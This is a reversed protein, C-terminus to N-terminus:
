VTDIEGLVMQWNMLDLSPFGTFGALDSWKHPLELSDSAHSLEPSATMVLLSTYSSVVCGVLFYM